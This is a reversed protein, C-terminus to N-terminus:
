FDETARLSGRTNLFSAYHSRWFYLALSSILGYWTILCYWFSQKGPLYTKRNRQNILREKGCKRLCRHGWTNLERMTGGINVTSEQGSKSDQYLIAMRFICILHSNNWLSKREQNTTPFLRKRWKIKWNKLVMKVCIAM